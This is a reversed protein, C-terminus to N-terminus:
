YVCRDSIPCKSQWCSISLRPRSRSYAIVTSPFILISETEL